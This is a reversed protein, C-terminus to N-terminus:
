MSYMAVAHHGSEAMLSNVAPKFLSLTTNNCQCWVIPAVALEADASVQYSAQLIFDCRARV